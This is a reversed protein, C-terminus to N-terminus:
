GHIADIVERVTASSNGVAILAVAILARYAFVEVAIARAAARSVVPSEDGGARRTVARRVSESAGAAIASAALPLARAVSRWSRAGDHVSLRERGWTRWHSAARVLSAVAIVAVLWLLPHLPRVLYGAMSRYFVTDLARRVTGHRQGSLALLRYRADNALALDGRAAATEELVDLARIQTRSGAIRETDAIDMLLGTTPPPDLGVSSEPDGQSDGVNADRGILAGTLSLVGTTTVSNLSIGGPLDATHFDLSDLVQAQDFSLQESSRVFRFSTAAGFLARDFSVAGKFVALTYDAGADFRVRMFTVADDFLSEQVLTPGTFHARDFRALDFFMAGSFNATSQFQTRAFDATDVFRVEVFSSDGRATMSRADFPGGFEVGDFATQHAFTVTQLNSRGAVFPARDASRQLLFADLFTAGHIDLSGQVQLGSLDVVRGFVVDAARLSGTITCDRCALLHDVRSVDRLDVDGTIVLGQTDIGESDVLRVFEDGSM